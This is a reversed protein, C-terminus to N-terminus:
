EGGGARAVSADVKQLTELVKAQTAQVSSLAEDAAPNSDQAAAGGDLKRSPDAPKVSSRLSVLKNLLDFWFPAGMTMAVATLLWGLIWTSLVRMKQNQWDKIFKEWIDQTWGVPYGYQELERQLTGVSAALERDRQPTTDGRGPQLNPDTNMQSPSPVPVPLPSPPVPPAAGKGDKRSDTMKLGPASDFQKAAPPKATEGTPPATLAVPASTESGQKKSREREVKDVITPNTKAETADKVIALRFEDDYYLREVVTVTNLNIILAVALGILFLMWQTQRKYWGSVRDMTSDYWAELQKRATVIDGDSNDLAWLIAKALRESPPLVEEGPVPPGNGASTVLDAAAKRVNKFRQAKARALSTASKAAGTAPPAIVDLVAAAFNEKPIYSPLRRHNRYGQLTAWLGGVIPIKSVFSPTYEGPFLSDILPHEFFQVLTSRKGNTKIPTTDDLIERLAKELMTARSGLLSELLERVASCILSAFLFFFVVGIVVDLMKFNFM